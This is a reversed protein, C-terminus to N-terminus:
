TGYSLSPLLFWVEDGFYNVLALRCTRRVNEAKKERLEPAVPSNLRVRCHPPVRVRVNMERLKELKVQRTNKLLGFM